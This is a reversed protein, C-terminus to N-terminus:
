YLRRGERKLTTTKKKVTDICVAKVQLSIHFLQCIQTDKSQWKQTLWIDLVEASNEM